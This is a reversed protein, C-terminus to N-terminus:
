TDPLSGGLPNALLIEKCQPCIYYSKRAYVDSTVLYEPISGMRYEVDKVADALSTEQENNIVDNVAAVIWVWIHYATERQTIERGCRDCQRM